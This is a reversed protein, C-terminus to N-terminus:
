PAPCPVVQHPCMQGPACAVSCWRVPAPTATPAPCHKNHQGSKGANCRKADVPVALLLSAVILALLVFPLFRRKM